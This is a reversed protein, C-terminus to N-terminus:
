ALDGAPYWGSPARALQRDLAARAQLARELDVIEFQVSDGPRRQALAGLDASIVTAVVPYGGMTAHDCLLVIPEGSPPMQVAGHVMGHSGRPGHSGGSPGRLEFPRPGDLRVGIRNSDSRVVFREAAWAALAESGVPVPGPLIRLTSGRAMQASYGRPRGPDGIALEDGSQLPGPGLGSLQDSSCSGFLEPGRIGGAVAVYGRLGTSQGVKLRGGAPVEVVSESPVSRGDLAVGAGVVVVLAACDFRLVPGEVTTELGGSLEPNGAILNALRLSELDAAGAAPVGLHGVKLRGGDQLTTLGGTAEVVVRRSSSCRPRVRVGATASLEGITEAPVIRVRDGPQFTAYPELFPDFLELDTRGLLNWGGPSTRPYVGLYGGAVAVSGAPVSTRPSARREIGLLFSPLGQIYAFGPSFGLYAVRLSAHAIADVVQSQSVGAALAVEDLDPGDFKVPMEVVRGRRVSPSRPPIARLREELSGIRDVAVKVLLTPGALVEDVDELESLARMLEHPDESPEPEVLLASEGFGVIHRM